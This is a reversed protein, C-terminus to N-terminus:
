RYYISNLNINLKELTKAPTDDSKVLTNMDSVFKDKDEEYTLLLERLILDALIMQIDRRVNTKYEKLISEESVDRGFRQKLSKAVERASKPHSLCANLYFKGCLINIDDACKNYENIFFKTVEGQIGYDELKAMFLYEIAKSFARVFVCDDVTIDTDRRLKAAIGESFVQAVLSYDEITDKREINALWIDSMPLYITGTEESSLKIIDKRKNYISSFLRYWEPDLKDMFLDLKAMIYEYSAEIKKYPDCKQITCKDQADVIYTMYDLYEEEFLKNNEEYIRTFDKNNKREVLNCDYNILYSLIRVENSNDENLGNNLLDEKAEKLTFPNWMGYNTAVKVM